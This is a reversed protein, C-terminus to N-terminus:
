DTPPVADPNARKRNESRRHVLWVGLAGVTFIGIAVLWRIADGQIEAWSGPLAVLVVLFLALGVAYVAAWVGLRWSRLDGGDLGLFPLFALPLTSVAEITLASLLEAAFRALVDDPAADAAPAVIGFAAWAGAGVLIAFAASALMMRGRAQRPISDAIVLGAVLGFIIGPNLHLLRSAVVGVALIVLSGWRLQLPMAVGPAVRRGVLRVVLAGLGVFIVLSVLATLVLRLSAADAGFAPDLAATIIAAVVLGTGLLIRRLVGSPRPTRARTWRAAVRDYRDAIVRSLLYGPYALVLVLVVVAGAILGLQDATPIAEAPTRLGSLTSPRAPGDITGVPEVDSPLYDEPPPASEVLSLAAVRRNAWEYEFQRCSPDTTPEVMVVSSAVEADIETVVFVGDRIEAATPTMVATIVNTWRGEERGDPFVCYSSERNLYSMRYSTGDFELPVEVVRSSGDTTIISFETVVDCPLVDACTTAFTFDTTGSYDFVTARTRACEDAWGTCQAELQEGPGEFFGDVSGAAPEREGWVDIAAPFGADADREANAVAFPDSFVSSWSAPEPEGTFRFTAPAAATIGDEGVTVRGDAVVGGCSQDCSLAFSTGPRADVDGEATGVRYGTSAAAVANWATGAELTGRSGADGVTFRAGDALRTFSGDAWEIEVLAATGTVAIVEGPRVPGDDADAGDVTADGALVRLTANPTATCATLAGLGAILIAAVAIGRRVLAHRRSPLSPPRAM